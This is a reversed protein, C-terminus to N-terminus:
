KEVEFYRVSLPERLFMDDEIDSQAEVEHRRWESNIVPWWFGLKVFRSNIILVRREALFRRETWNAYKRQISVRAERIRYEM